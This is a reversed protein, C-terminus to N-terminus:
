SAARLLFFSGPLVDAKRREDMRDVGGNWDADLEDSCMYYSLTPSLSFFEHVLSFSLSHSICWGHLGNYSSDALVVCCLSAYQYFALNIIGGGAWM